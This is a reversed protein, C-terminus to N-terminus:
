EIGIYIYLLILITFAYVVKPVAKDVVTYGKLATGKAKLRVSGM